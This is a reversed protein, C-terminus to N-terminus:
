AFDSGYAVSCALCDLLARKQAQMEVLERWLEWIDREQGTEVSFRDMWDELNREIELWAAEWLSRQTSTHRQQESMGHAEQDFIYHQHSRCSGTENLAKKSLRDNPLCPSPAATSKRRQVTGVPVSGKRPGFTPSLPSLQDAKQTGGRTHELSIDESVDVCLDRGSLLSAENGMSNVPPASMLAQLTMVHRPMPTEEYEDPLQIGSDKRPPLFPRRKESHLLDLESCLMVLFTQLVPKEINNLWLPTTLGLPSSSAELQLRLLDWQAKASIVLCEESLTTLCLSASLTTPSPGASM